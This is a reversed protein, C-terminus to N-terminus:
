TIKNIHHQLDLKVNASKLLCKYWHYFLGEKLKELKQKHKHSVKLRRVTQFWQVTNYHLSIRPPFAVINEHVATSNIQFALSRAIHSKMGFM